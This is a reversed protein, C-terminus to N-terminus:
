EKYERLKLEQDVLEWIDPEDCSSLYRDFVSECIEEFEDDLIDVELQNEVESAIVPQIVKIDNDNLFNVMERYKM